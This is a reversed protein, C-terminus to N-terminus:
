IREREREREAEIYLVVEYWIIVMNVWEVM